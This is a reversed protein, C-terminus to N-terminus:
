RDLIDEVVRNTLHATCQFLLGNFVETTRTAYGRDCGDIIDFIAVAAQTGGLKRIEAVLEALDTSNLTPMVPVENSAAKSIIRQFADDSSSM